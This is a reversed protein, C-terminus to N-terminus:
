SNKNEDKKRADKLLDYKRQKSKWRDLAYKQMNDVKDKEDIIEFGLLSEIIDELTTIGDMGGYNDIVLSIHERKALMEDWAKFLTTSKPFTIIERKIDKLKLDFQDEALKEFVVTRLVYGSINDKNTQYIPIRSFHLFEKNKLFEQLTMEENAIVVVVRPTMIESVKISKLKILNQIIKNEKDAFIGEQTGISALASIEERSTTLEIKSRALLRTLLSSIIVLPYTLIISVNILKSIVGVLEKSYNAGLTKPIIETFVLILITLVASVIGFYADGFVITAQAGVGAAGVTHAVTNLSLIASLPKDIDEKLKIMSEASRDGNELKSKLYSIPVSLLVAEMISCLFSIFLAIFLYIFLLTM